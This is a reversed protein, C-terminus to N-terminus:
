TCHSSLLRNNRWCPATHGQRPGPTQSDPRSRHESEGTATEGGAAGLGGPFNGNERPFQFTKRADESHLHIFSM